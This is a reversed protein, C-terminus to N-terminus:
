AEQCAASVRRPEVVAETGIAVEQVLSKVVQSFPLHTQRGPVRAPDPGAGEGAGAGRCREGSHARADGGRATGHRQQPM